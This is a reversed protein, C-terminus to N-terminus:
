SLLFEWIPVVMVETSDTKLLGEEDYTIIQGGVKQNKMATVLGKIERKKNHETLEYCVQFACDKTIFDCEYNATKLFYPTTKRRKLELYFINELLHGKELEPNLYNAIGQDILYAKKVYTLSSKTKAISPMFFGYYVEEIMRIYSHIVSTSSTIGSSRAFHHFKNISFERGYNRGIYHLLLHLLPTNKIRYREVLDRYFITKLYDDVISLNQELVVEPFGSSLM